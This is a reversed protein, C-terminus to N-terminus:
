YAFDIPMYFLPTSNLGQHCKSCDNPHRSLLFQTDLRRYKVLDESDTRIVDGDKAVTACAPLLKSQGEVEVLCLRCVASAKFRPHYCLTPVFVGAAKAADLLSSGESVIVPKSNITVRVSKNILQQELPVSLLRKM